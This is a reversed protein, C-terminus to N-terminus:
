KKVKPPRTESLNLKFNKGNLNIEILKNDTTVTIDYDVALFDVIEQFLHTKEDSVKVTRPKESKKRQKKDSEAGHSIKVASAKEDLANQEADEEIDHDCLWTDIAEEQTLDLTDILNDIEAQPIRIKKGDIIREIM